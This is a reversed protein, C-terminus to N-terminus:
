DEVAAVGPFLVDHLRIAFTGCGCRICSATSITASTSCSARTSATSARPSDAQGAPDFGEYRLRTYRPVVGRLGPCRCAAKGATRWRRPRAADARSQRAGHVAGARRRSLASQVGRRLHRRAVARRDAARRARRRQARADHRAHRRAAGRARAHRLARGRAVARAAASRGHAPRRPDHRSETGAATSPRSAPACRRRHLVACRTSCRASRTWAAELM